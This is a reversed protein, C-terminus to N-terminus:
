LAAGRRRGDPGARGHAGGAAGAGAVADAHPRLAAAWCHQLAHHPLRAESSCAAAAARCGMPRGLGGALLLGVQSYNRYFGEMQDLVAQIDRVM